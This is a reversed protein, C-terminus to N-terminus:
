HILSLEQVEQMNQAPIYTSHPDLNKLIEPITKEVISNTNISDVYGQDILDLITAIKNPQNYGMGSFVTQSNQKLMNGIVIGAAISVAVMIPIYLMAKKNM